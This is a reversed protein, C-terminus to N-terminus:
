LVLIVDGGAASIRLKSRTSRFPFRSLTRKKTVRSIVFPPPHVFQGKKVGGGGGM